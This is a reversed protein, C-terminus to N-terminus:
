ALERKCYTCIQASPSVQQSCQVEEGDEIRVNQCYYIREAEEKEAEQEAEEEKEAPHNVNIEEVEKDAELYSAFTDDNEWVKMGRKAFSPERLPTPPPARKMHTHSSPTGTGILASKM